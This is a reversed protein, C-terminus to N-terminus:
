TPSVPQIFCGSLRSHLVCRTRTIPAEEVRIFLQNKAHGVEDGMFCINFRYLGPARTQIKFGISYMEKRALHRPKKVHYFKHRDEFNTDPNQEPTEERIGGREMLPNLFSKIIPKTDLGVYNQDNCGFYIASCHFAVSPRYLLEIEFESNAGLTLEEVYHEKHSQETYPISRQDVSPILFWTRCPRKLARRQLAPAVLFEYAGFGFVGVTGIIAAAAGVIVWEGETMAALAWGMISFCAMLIRARGTRAIYGAPKPSPVRM